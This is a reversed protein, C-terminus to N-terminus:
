INDKTYETKYQISPPFLIRFSKLWDYDVIFIHKLHSNNMIHKLAATNRIDNIRIGVVPGYEDLIIANFFLAQSGEVCGSCVVARDDCIISSNAVIEVGRIRRYTPMRYPGLGKSCFKFIPKM